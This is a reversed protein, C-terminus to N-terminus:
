AARRQRSLATQLRLVHVQAGYLSFAMDECRAPSPDGQLAELDAQLRSAINPLDSLLSIVDPEAYLRRIPDLDGRV